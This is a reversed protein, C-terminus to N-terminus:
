YRFTEVEGSTEVTVYGTTTSGWDWWEDYWDISIYYPTDSTFLRVDDTGDWGDRMNGYGMTVLEGSPGGVRVEWAAWSEAEQYVTDRDWVLRVTAETPVPLDGVAFVAATHLSENGARDVAWYELRHNGEDAVDLTVVETTEVAAGDDIRYYLHDVGSGGVAPIDTATISMRATGDPYSGQLDSTVSPGTWDTFFEVRHAPEENGSKDVSWYELVHVGQAYTRSVTYPVTTSSQVTGGDWRWRLSSFGSGADTASLTIKVLASKYYTTADSTSAPPRVDRVVTFTAEKPAEVNGTYDESWFRLVHEESPSAPEPVAISTGSLTPGGDLSYYTAKVGVSSADTAELKIVAPGEYEPRADSTTEPAVTDETVSFAATRHIEENGVQDVSWYEVTHNGSLTLFSTGRVPKAGDLVYYTAIGGIKGGDTASFTVRASGEYASRLDTTTVPAVADSPDYRQHCEDCSTFPVAWDDYYDHCLECDEIADHADSAEPHYTPHCPAMTCTGDWEGIERVPGTRGHCADCDNGHLPGLDPNHCETCDVTIGRAGLYGEHNEFLALEQSGIGSADHAEPDYGHYAVRDPHCSACAPSDIAAPAADVGHCAIATCSRTATVYDPLPEGPVIGPAPGYAYMVSSASLDVELRPAWATNVTASSYFGNYRRTVPAPDVLLLDLYAKGQARAAAVLATVDFEGTSSEAFVSADYDAGEGKAGAIAWAAGARYTNWSAQNAAWDDRLLRYARVTFPAGTSRTLILRASSVATGGEIKALPFRLVAREEGSGTKGVFVATAADYNTIASSAYLYTDPCSDGQAKGVAVTSVQGPAEIQAHESHGDANTHCAACEAPGHCGACEPQDSLWSGQVHVAHVESASANPSDPTQFLGFDTAVSAYGMIAPRPSFDNSSHHCDACNRSMYDPAANQAVHFIEFDHVGYWHCDNCRTRDIGVDFDSESPAVGDQGHCDLCSENYEAAIATGCLASLLLACAALAVWVPRTCARVGRM